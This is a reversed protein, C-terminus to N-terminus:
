AVQIFNGDFSVDVRGFVRFLRGLCHGGWLLFGNVKRKLLLVLNHNLVVAANIRVVCIVKSGLFLMLKVAEGSEALV